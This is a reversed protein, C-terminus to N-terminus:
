LWDVETSPMAGDVAEPDAMLYAVRADLQHRLLMALSRRLQDELPATQEPPRGARRAADLTAIGAETRSGAPTLRPTVLPGFGYAGDADFPTDSEAYMLKRGYAA